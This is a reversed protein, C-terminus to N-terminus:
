WNRPKFSATKDIAQRVQEVDFRVLRGIKLFPIKRQSQMDRVWRLSPRSSPDFLAELLGRADVLRVPSAPPVTPHLNPSTPAPLIVTDM